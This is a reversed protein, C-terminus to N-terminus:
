ANGDGGKKWYAAGRTIGYKNSNDEEASKNSEKGNKLITAITRISPSSSFTLMRECATELKVKGYRDSLKRLSVCDKYGQEPANGSTLFHKIVAETSTGVGHSWERFEDANYELYKRHNDPMHEPKVVPQVSFSDLRKHSTVRSGKFFVEVINKTLRVQVQEGILDFPVSYKNLGDSILYDSGVTQQRWISPEYPHKPQPLMFEKEESLYAERRNGPRKQFQKTNIVELREAVAEKVESFSFFKRERLAATIWTSTFGVSKEVLGKDQPKRVRAPVIATGYYEALERYSENLQTEYRTNAVVGTKLNDPVLIRTVGGFYEYAHVHCLLWNEQKMDTCAEVYIYSSCPLAAVFLYAKYEEGTISDYYPITGGAWDVQLVEGPKHTIRMTAKTVRAWRRYKDGFQTSMYPIQGNAYAKECYEQWLLTLTVGKKSLERHIYEYDPEAYHKGATQREPYLLKELEANTVSDDLPWLIQLKKANTLVESVTNRSAKVSSAINRQSYGLSQLRLIERYNIM